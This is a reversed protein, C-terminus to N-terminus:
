NAFPYKHRKFINKNKFYKCVIENLKSLFYEQSGYVM